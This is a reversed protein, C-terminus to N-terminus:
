NWSAAGSGRRFASAPIRAARFPDLGVLRLTGGGAALGVELELVPSALAVGPLRALEAFLREDFGQRGGHVQLDAEGALARVGAALENVAARNVLLVAFGLAVGLAIGAVTSRRAGAGTGACRSPSSGLAEFPVDGALTIRHMVRRYGHYDNVPNHLTCRTDWFAISGPQWAFRCTFEPRVQHEFLYELLPASEEQTTGSFRVTHGRSVYLAKRGTEPHTRAVPHEAVFEREAEGTGASRM